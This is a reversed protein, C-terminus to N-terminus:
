LCQIQALMERVADLTRRQDPGSPIVHIRDIGLAHLTEIRDFLDSDSGVVYLLDRHLLDPTGGLAPAIRARAAAADSAGVVVATITASIRVQSSRPAAQDRVKRLIVDIAEAAHWQGKGHLLDIRNAVEAARVLLDERSGGIVVPVPRADTDWDWPVDNDVQFHAGHHSVVGRNELMTRCVRAAELLRETREPGPGWPIGFAVHEPRYWGSGLGLEARGRSLQDVSAIGHAIVAPHHFNVNMVMAALTIRSTSAAAAGLAVLPEVRWRPPSPARASFFHDVAVLGDFGEDEMRRAQEAAQLGLSEGFVQL